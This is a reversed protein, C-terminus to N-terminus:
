PWSEVWPPTRITAERSSTLRLLSSIRAVLEGADFPKVIYDDAGAEICRAVSEVEEVASIILVPIDRWAESQKLRALVEYGDMEPMIVDLLILDPTLRSAM